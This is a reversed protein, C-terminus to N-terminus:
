RALPREREAGARLEAALTMAATRFLRSKSIGLADAAWEIERAQAPWLKVSTPAKQKNKFKPAM